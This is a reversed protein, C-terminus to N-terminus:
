QVLLSPPLRPPNCACVRAEPCPTTRPPIHEQVPRLANVEAGPANPGDKSCRLTLAGEVNRAVLAVGACTCRLWAGSRSEGCRLIDPPKDEGIIFAAAGPPHTADSSPTSRLSFATKLRV